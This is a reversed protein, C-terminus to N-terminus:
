ASYIQPLFDARHPKSAQRAPNTEILGLAVAKELATHINTHHRLISTSSLGKQLLWDYYSTIDGATLSQLLIQREQFYPNISNEVVRCYSAFTTPAVTPRFQMLGNEMYCSFLPNNQLDQQHEKASSKRLELLMEEARRKNGKEKLHTTVSKTRRKGM